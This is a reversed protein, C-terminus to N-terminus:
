PLTLTRESLNVALPLVATFFSDEILTLQPSYGAFFSILQPHSEM